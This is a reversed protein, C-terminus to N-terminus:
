KKPQLSAGATLQLFRELLQFRLVMLDPQLPKVIYDDAGAEFAAIKEPVGRRHSCVIVSPSPNSQKHAHAILGLGDGDPLDTELIVLRPHIRGLQDLAEQRTAVAVVRFHSGFGASICEELCSRTTPDPEVVLVTGDTTPMAMMYTSGEM